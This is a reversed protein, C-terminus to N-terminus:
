VLLMCKFGSQCDSLSAQTTPPHSGCHFYQGVEDDCKILLHDLMVQMTLCVFLFSFFLLPFCIMLCIIFSNFYMLGELGATFLVIDAFDHLQKLFEHLGPREFVTVYNIKPKGDYDKM